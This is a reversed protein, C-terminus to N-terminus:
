NNSGNRKIYKRKLKKIRLVNIFYGSLGIIITLMVFVILQTLPIEKNSPTVVTRMAVISLLLASIILAGHIFIKMEYILEKEKM